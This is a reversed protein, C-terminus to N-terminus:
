GALTAALRSRFADMNGIHRPDARMSAVERHAFVHSAPISHERCLDVVRRVIGPRADWWPWPFALGYSAANVYRNRWDTGPIRSDRGSHWAADEARVQLHARVVGDRDPGFVEHYSAQRGNPNADNLRLARAVVDAAPQDVGPDHLILYELPAWRRKTYCRKLWPGRVIEYGHGSTM